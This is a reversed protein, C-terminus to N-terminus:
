KLLSAETHTHTNTHTHTQTHTHTHTHTVEATVGRALYPMKADTHAVTMALVEQLSQNPGLMSGLLAEAIYLDSDATRAWLRLASVQSVCM